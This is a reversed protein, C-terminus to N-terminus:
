IARTWPIYDGTHDFKADGDDTFISRKKPKKKPGYSEALEAENIVQNVPADTFAHPQALPKVPTQKVPNDSFGRQVIYNGARYQGKKIRKANQNLEVAFSKLTKDM